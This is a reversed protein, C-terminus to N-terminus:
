HPDKKSEVMMMLTVTMMMSEKSTTAEASCDYPTFESGIGDNGRDHDGVDRDRDVVGVIM